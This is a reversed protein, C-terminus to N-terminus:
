QIYFEKGCEKCRAKWRAFNITADIRKIELHDSGCYPCKEKELICLIGTFLFILLLIVAGVFIIIVTTNSM